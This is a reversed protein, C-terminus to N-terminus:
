ATGGKQLTLRTSLDDTIAPVDWRDTPTDYSLRGAWPGDDDVWFEVNGLRVGGPQMIRRVLAAFPAHPAHITVPPM